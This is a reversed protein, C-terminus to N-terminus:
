YRPRRRTYLAKADEATFPTINPRQSAHVAPNDLPERFQVGVGHKGRHRLDCLIDIDYPEVVLRFEVPLWPPVECELLAGGPSINRVACAFRQRGSVMIWAHWLTQRRGFNRRESLANSKQLPM